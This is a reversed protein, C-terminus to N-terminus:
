KSIIYSMVKAQLDKAWQPQPFNWCIAGGIILGVIFGFM